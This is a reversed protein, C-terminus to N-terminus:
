KSFPIFMEYENEHQIEIENVNELINIQEASIPPLKSSWEDISALLAQSTESPSLMAVVTELYDENKNENVDAETPIRSLMDAVVNDKGARYRITFQYCDLRELWRALRKNPEKKDPLYILPKHDTEWIFHRGFLM